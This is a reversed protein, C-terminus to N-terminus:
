RFGHYNNILLSAQNLELDNSVYKIKNSRAFSVGCENAAIESFYDPKMESSNRLDTLESCPM